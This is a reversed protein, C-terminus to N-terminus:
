KKKIIAICGAKLKSDPTGKYEPIGLLNHLNQDRKQPSSIIEISLINNTLYLNQEDTLYESYFQKTENFKHLVYWVTDNFSEEDELKGDKNYKDIWLNRGGENIANTYLVGHKQGWWSGTQFGWMTCIDEIIYVGGNKIKNFLNGLSVLMHEQFHQGDDVILDLEVNEFISQLGDNNKQCCKIAHIRSSFNNLYNLINESCLLHGASNRVCNDICYIEGFSFYDNWMKISSGKFIGIELMNIKKYRINKLVQDYYITYGHQVKDTEYKSALECLDTQVSDSSNINYLLSTM